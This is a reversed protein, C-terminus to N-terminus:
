SSVPRAPWKQCISLERNRVRDKPVRAHIGGEPCRAYAQILASYMLETPEELKKFFFFFLFLFLFSMYSSQM